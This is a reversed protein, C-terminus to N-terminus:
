MDDSASQNIFTKTILYNKKKNDEEYKIIPNLRRPASSVHKRKKYVTQPLIASLQRNVNGASGSYGINSRGRLCRAQATSRVQNGQVNVRAFREYDGHKPLTLNRREGNQKRNPMRYTSIKSNVGIGSLEFDENEYCKTIERFNDNKIGVNTMQKTMNNNIYSNVPKSRTYGIYGGTKSGCASNSNWANNNFPSHIVSKAPLHLTDSELSTAHLAAIQKYSVDSSVVVIDSTFLDDVGTSIDVVEIEGDIESDDSESFSEVQNKSSYKWKASKPRSIKGGMNTDNEEVNECSVIIRRSIDDTCTRVTSSPGPSITVCQLGNIVDDFVNDIDPYNTQPTERRESKKPRAIQQHSIVLANGNGNSFINDGSLNPNQKINSIISNSYIDKRTDKVLVSRPLIERIESLVKETSPRRQTEGLLHAHRDAASNLLSDFVHEHPIASKSIM